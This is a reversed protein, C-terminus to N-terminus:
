PIPMQKPPVFFGATKASTATPQENKLMPLSLIIEAKGKHCYIKSIRSEFARNIRLSCTATQAFFFGAPKASTATPRNNQSMSLSSM